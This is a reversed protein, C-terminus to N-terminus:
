ILLLLTETADGGAGNDAANPEVLRRSQLSQSCGRWGGAAQGEATESNAM